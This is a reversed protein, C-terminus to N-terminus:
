ALRSTGRRSARRASATMKRPAIVRAARSAAMVRVSSSEEYSTFPSNVLVIRGSAHAAREELDAFSRVVFVEATLGTPPTAVSDGLGLMAIEHETPEVIQARERGRVWRPVM